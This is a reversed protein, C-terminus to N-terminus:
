RYLVNGLTFIPQAFNRRCNYSAHAVLEVGMVFRAVSVLLAVRGGGGCDRRHWYTQLLGCKGASDVHVCNCHLQTSPACAAFREQAVQRICGLPNETTSPWWDLPAWSAPTTGLQATM